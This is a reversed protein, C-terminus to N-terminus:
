ERSCDSLNWVSRLVVSAREDARLAHWALTLTARTLQIAGARPLKRALGVVTSGPNSPKPVIAVVCGNAFELDVLLFAKRAARRRFRRSAMRRLSRDLAGTVAV